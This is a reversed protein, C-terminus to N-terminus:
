RLDYTIEVPAMGRAALAVDYVKDGLAAFAEETQEDLRKADVASYVPSDDHAHIYEAFPTDPHYGGGLQAVCRRIFKRAQTANM